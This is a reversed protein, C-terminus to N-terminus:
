MQVVVTSTSPRTSLQHPCLRVRADGAWRVCCHRCVLFFPWGGSSVFIGCHRAQDGAKDVAVGQVAVSRLRVSEVKGYEKFVGKVKKPTFSTPLNGVFVTRLEKEEEVEDTDKVAGAAAAEGGAGAERGAKGEDKNGVGATAAAGGGKM